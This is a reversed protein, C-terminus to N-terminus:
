EIMLSLPLHCATSSQWPIYAILALVGSDHTPADPDPPEPDPPKPPIAAPSPSSSPTGTILTLPLAASSDSSFLIMPSWLLTWLPPVPPHDVPCAPSPGSPHPSLILLVTPGRDLLPGPVHAILAMGSPPSNSNRIKKHNEQEVSHIALRM